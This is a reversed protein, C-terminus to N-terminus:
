LTPSQGISLVPIKTDQHWTVKWNSKPTKDFLISRVLFAHPLGLSDLISRLSGNSVFAAIGESFETAQRLGGKFSHEKRLVEVHVKLTALAETTM